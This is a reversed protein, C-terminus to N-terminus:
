IDMDLSCRTSHRTTSETSSHIQNSIRVSEGKSIACVAQTQIWWHFLSADEMTDSQWEGQAM